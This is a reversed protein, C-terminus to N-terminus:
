GGGERALCTLSMFIVVLVVRDVRAVALTMCRLRVRGKVVGACRPSKRALIRLMGLQRLEQSLLAYWVCCVVSGVGVRVPPEAAIRRQARVVVPVHVAM